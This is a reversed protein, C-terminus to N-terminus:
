EKVGLYGLNVMMHHRFDDMASFPNIASMNSHVISHLITAIYMLVVHTHVITSPWIFIYVELSALLLMLLVYMMLLLLYFPLSITPYIGYYDSLTYALLSIWTEQDKTKAIVIDM